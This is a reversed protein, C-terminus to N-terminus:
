GARHDAALREGRRAAPGPDRRLEPRRRPRGHRRSRPLAAVPNRDQAGIRRPGARGPVAGLQRGPIRRGQQLRLLGAHGGPERRPRAGDGPLAALGPRGGPDVLRAAPRRDDRVAARDRGPRVADDGSVDLLGAEKLLIAAELMDSVSQCMSIIYNPVAEPGFVRVARAAAAVIDLEKRALESLDADDRILPRRTSLEAVLLEVRERSPCRRRLGSARRGLGATRRGGGRPRRLEAAHGPRVPSVRLRRVAERLRALRDDALLASGHARLSADIVDLDALLEAPTAYRSWVSTWCMSPSGTWSRARRDGDAPRAGGAGRPPVARRRPGARACADALAALEDNIQVLRASM